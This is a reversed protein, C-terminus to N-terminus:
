VFFSWVNEAFPSLNGNNSSAEVLAKVILAAYVVWDGFDDRCTNKMNKKAKMKM